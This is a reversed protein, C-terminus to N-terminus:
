RSRQGANVIKLIEEYKGLIDKLKALGDADVNATIELRNGIQLVSIDARGPGCSPAIRLLSKEPDAVM